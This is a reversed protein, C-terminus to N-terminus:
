NRTLGQLQQLLKHEKQPSVKAALEFPKLASGVIGNITFPIAGSLAITRSGDHYRFTVMEGDVAYVTTHFLGKGSFPGFPPAVPTAQVGRVGDGVFAALIGASQAGGDISVLATVTMTDSFKSPEVTWPSSGATPLPQQAPEPAALARRGGDVMFKATGGTKVKLKYGKGPELGDLNGFWGYGEYYTTFVIQSKLMDDGGYALDPLAGNAIM